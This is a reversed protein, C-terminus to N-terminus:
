YRRRIRGGDQAAQLSSIACFAFLDTIMGALCALSFGFRSSVVDAFCHRRYDNKDSFVLGGFGWM